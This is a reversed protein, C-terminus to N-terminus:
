LTLVGSIGLFLAFVASCAMAIIAILRYSAESGRRFFFAGVASGGACLPASFVGLLVVSLSLTGDLAATVLAFVALIAFLIIMSARKVRAPVERALFYAVVPPGPAAALGSFLGALFGVAATAVMGPRPGLSFRLLLAAAAAATISGIIIQALWLPVMAILLLGVPTGFFAALTLLGVAKRDAYGACERLDILTLLTQVILVALVADAPPVLLVLFPMAFLAMGFGALGRLFAGLALCFAFGAFVPLTFTVEMM